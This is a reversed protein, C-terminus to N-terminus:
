TKVARTEPLDIPPDEASEPLVPKTVVPAEPRTQSRSGPIVRVSPVLWGPCPQRGILRGQQALYANDGRVTADGRHGTLPADVM